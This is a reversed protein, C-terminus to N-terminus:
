QVSPDDVTADDWGDVVVSFHIPEDLVPDGPHKEKPIDKIINDGAPLGDPLKTPPYVGAGSNHGCFELNYVYKKGAEWNFAVPVCTYGYAEPKYTETIPFLQHIHQKKETDEKVLPDQTGGEHTVGPHWAEVRCLLLIYGGSKDEEGEKKAFEYAEVNQPVLMLNRNKLAGTLLKNADVSETSEKARLYDDASLGWNAGYFSNQPTASTWDLDNTREPNRSLDGKGSVNVIWAGKIFVRKSSSNPCHATIEIQSLAHHFNLVVAKGGANTKQVDNYAVVLDKQKTIDSDPVFNEFKQGEFNITVTTKDGLDTPAYAWFQIHSANTPWIHSADTYFMGDKDRKAIEGDIFFGDYTDAEAYVKFEQLNETTTGVARTMRTTFSIKEGQYVEKLEDTTCSALAMSLMAMTGLLKVNRKM